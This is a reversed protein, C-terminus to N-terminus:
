LSDFKNAVCLCKNFLYILKVKIISFMTKSKHYYHVQDISIINLKACDNLYMPVCFGLNWPLPEVNRKYRM